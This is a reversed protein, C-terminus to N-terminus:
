GIMFVKDAGNDRRLEIKNPHVGFKRSLMTVLENWLGPDNLGSQLYVLYRNNGFNEITNKTSKEKIRVSIDM